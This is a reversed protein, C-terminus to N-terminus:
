TVKSLDVERTNPVFSGGGVQGKYLPKVQYLPCLVRGWSTGQLSAESSILSLPGTGLKDRTSLSWQILSLPGTGVQEKSLPEVTYPVFSGGWSTGQLSAGSYLPCLVWGLKDRPSLSWQILSLPGTGM